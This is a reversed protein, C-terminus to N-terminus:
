LYRLDLIRDQWPRASADSGQFDPTHHPSAKLVRDAATEVAKETLAEQGQYERKEKFHALKSYKSATLIHTTHSFRM